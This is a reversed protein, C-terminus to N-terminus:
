EEKIRKEIEALKKYLAIFVLEQKETYDKGDEFADFAKNFRGLLYDYRANLNMGLMKVEFSEMYRNIDTERNM